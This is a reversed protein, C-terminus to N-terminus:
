VWSIIEAIQSASPAQFFLKNDGKKIDKEEYSQGNALNMYITGSAGSVFCIKAPVGPNRLKFIFRTTGAPLTCSYETNALTIEVNAVTPRAIIREM